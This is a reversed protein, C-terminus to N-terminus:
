SLSTVEAVLKLKSTDHTIHKAYSKVPFHHRFVVAQERLGPVQNLVPVGVSLLVARDRQLGVHYLHLAASLLLDQAELSFVHGEEASDDADM